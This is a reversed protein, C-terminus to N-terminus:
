VHDLPTEQIRRGGAIAILNDAGYREERLGLASAPDPGYM